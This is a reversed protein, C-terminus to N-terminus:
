ATMQEAAFSPLDTASPAAGTALKERGREASLLAALVYRQRETLTGLRKSESIGISQLLRRCRTPGWRHQSSLLEGLSMTDVFSPSSIVVDAVSRDGAAISRKLSARAIRIENARQLAQMNQPAAACTATELSM